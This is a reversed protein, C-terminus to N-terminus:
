EDADGVGAAGDALRGGAGEVQAHAGAGVTRHGGAVGGAVRVGRAGAVVLEVTEDLLGLAVQGVVGPQLGLEGGVDVDAVGAVGEPVAAGHVEVTVAAALAAVRALDRGDEVVLPAVADVVVAGVAGDGVRALRDRVDVGGHAEVVGA